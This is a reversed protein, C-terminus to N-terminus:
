WSQLLVAEITEKGILRVNAAKVMADRELQRGTELKWWEWHMEM